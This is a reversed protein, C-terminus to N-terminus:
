HHRESCTSMTLRSMVTYSAVENNPQFEKFLAIIRTNEVNMAM